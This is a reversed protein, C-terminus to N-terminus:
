STIASASTLTASGITISATISAGTIYGIRESSKGTGAAFGLIMDFGARSIAKKDEAFDGKQFPQAGWPAMRNPAFYKAVVSDSDLSNALLDVYYNANEGARTSSALVKVTLVSRRVGELVRDVEKTATNEEYSWYDEGVTSPPVTWDLLVYPRDPQPADEEAWVTELGTMDSAWDVLAQEVEEWAISPQPQFM